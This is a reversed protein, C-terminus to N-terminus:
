PAKREPPRPVGNKWLEPAFWSRRVRGDKDLFFRAVAEEVAQSRTEVQTVDPLVASGRREGGEKWSQYSYLKSRTYVIVERGEIDREIRTPPGWAAIVQEKGQGAYPDQVTVQVGADAAPPPHTACSVALLAGLGVAKWAAAGGSPRRLTSRITPM